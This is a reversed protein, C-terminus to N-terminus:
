NTIAGVAKVHELLTHTYGWENDYWAFVKVLDGDVVRTFSLDAISGHSNGIIDTSVLPEETVTFIGKWHEDQSAKRLIDNVEEVSTARSAIFTMDVLSGTIVPVRISIADFKDALNALVKGAAKAAGTSSPVINAAAARGRLFDGKAPSDTLEQSATYGHVTSMLSKVIGPNESLIAAIPVVANTTCSADSTVPALDANCLQADNAGMLMHPTGDKTPASIVVRKAGATLHASAAETSEFVGTSEIVVDVGLEGWPLQAPDKEALSLYKTGDVVIYENEGESAHKVTKGYPGYVSDWRLLYALNDETTLDNIAVVEFEEPRELAQKFAARGIRGFGNIAIKLAM